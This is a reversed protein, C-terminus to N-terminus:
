EDGKLIKLLEDLDFDRMDIYPHIGNFQNKFNNIYEIAKKCNNATTQLKEIEDLLEWSEPVRGYMNLAKIITQNEKGLSYVKTPKRAELHRNM